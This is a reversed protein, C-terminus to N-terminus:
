MRSNEARGRKEAPRPSQRRGAALAVAERVLYSADAVRLDEPVRQGDSLYGIPLANQIAVSICEGLSLCEDLKTFICGRLPIKRFQEVAEQMVVRQATAPLVLYSKIKVRTNSILTNLQENLRMDRQGMGATDILILKRHRLNHLQETLEESNKASRVPCGLIRGYTALQDKAGIRYSDTTVLAVQDAGHLAVFRAALKAITTTKGVGTPGVLAVVGGLRLVEDDTVVLQETILQQLQRWADRGTVNEGIYCAFQDALDSCIGIKTLQKVLMARVPESREMETKMLGSVQHELLQRMAQMEEQLAAIQQQAENSSQAAHQPQQGNKDWDSFAPNVTREQARKPVEMSQVQQQQRKLLSQLSDESENTPANSKAAQNQNFAAIKNRLGSLNVQDDPLDRSAQVAAASKTPARKVPQKIAISPAEHVTSNLSAELQEPDIGAVIEIGGTVKKSSMIVAEAGLVEKVEALATRMDKAFFRKIKM